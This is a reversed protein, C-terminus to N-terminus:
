VFYTHGMVNYAVNDRVEWYFTAHTTVARQYSDHISNAKVYSTEMNGSKHSVCM